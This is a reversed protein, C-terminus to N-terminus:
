LLSFKSKGSPKLHDILYFSMFLLLSSFSFGMKLTKLVHLQSAKKHWTEEGVIELICQMEMVEEVCSVM